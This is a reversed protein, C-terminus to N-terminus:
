RAPGPGPGRRRTCRCGARCPRPCGGARARWRPSCAQGSLEGHGLGARVGRQRGDRGPPGRARRDARQRVRRRQGAQGVYRLGRAAAAGADPQGALVARGPHWRVPLGRRDRRGARGSRRHGPVRRRLAPRAAVGDGQHGRLRRGAIPRRVRLLRGLDAGSSTGILTLGGGQHWVQSVMTVTGGVGSQSTQEVGQYSTEQGAVAAKGLLSMAFAQQSAAVDSLVTVPAGSTRQVDAVSNRVAADTGTPASPLPGVTSDGSLATVAMADTGALAHEHGLIALVALVGPITVTVAASVLLGPRCRM